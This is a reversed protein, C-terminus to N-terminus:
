LVPWWAWPEWVCEEQLVLIGPSPVQERRGLDILSPLQPADSSSLHARPSPAASTGQARHDPGRIPEM